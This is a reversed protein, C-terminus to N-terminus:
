PSLRDRAVALVDDWSRLTVDTLQTELRRRTLSDTQGSRGIVVFMKPRFVRIGHEDEIEVRHRESEFHDRSERLRACAQMVVETLETVGDVETAVQRQAPEVEVIDALDGGIPELMFDPQLSQSGERRLLVQSHAAKYEGGLIVDPHAQLFARIEDKGAYSDNLLEELEAIASAFDTKVFKPLYVLGLRNADTSVYSYTGDASLQAARIRGRHWTLAITEDSSVAPELEGIYDRLEALLREKPMAGIVKKKLTQGHFVMMTPISLVEHEAAFSQEEDVNIRAFETSEGFEGALEDVVPALVRCPGCWPAWFEVVVPKQGSDMM